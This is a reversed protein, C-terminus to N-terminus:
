FRWFARCSCPFRASMRQLTEEARSGTVAIRVITEIAANAEIGAIVGIAVITETAATAAIRAIAERAANAAIRDHLV